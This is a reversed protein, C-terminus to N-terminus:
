IVAAGKLVSLIPTANRLSYKTRASLKEVLHATTDLRLRLNHHERAIKQLAPYVEM